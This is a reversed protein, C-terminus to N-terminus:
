SQLNFCTFLSIHLSICTSECQINFLIYINAGVEENQITKMILTWFWEVKTVNEWIQMMDWSIEEIVVNLLPPTTKESIETIFPTEWCKEEQKFLFLLVTVGLEVQGLPPINLSNWLWWLKVYVIKEYSIDTQANTEATQTKWGAIKLCTASLLM